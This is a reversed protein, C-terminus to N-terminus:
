ALLKQLMLAGPRQLVLAVLFVVLLLATMLSYRLLGMRMSHAYKDLWTRTVAGLVPVGTADALARRSSFVPKFLHMLYAVGAGSALGLALVAIIFLPRNPFIPAFGATPPDIVNFKVVGTAEAEGSLKARELRELLANYQARTVDYDRTLRTYQAEVEPATDVLQRLQNEARRHEGLQGRLAALDVEVQNLQLQISQYVPNSAAGSRAAAGADGRRLAAIEEEQRLRLAALTERAAVVDPHRDTFRLLLEDLRAQTEQIRTSTDNASAAGGGTRNGTAAGGQPVFPVEGRLQRTLESRRSEAVGIASEIRRVEANEASLRQFYDGQGGPVLGMNQKKFEALRAEADALRRGYDALQERL